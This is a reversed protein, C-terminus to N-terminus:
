LTLSEMGMIPYKLVIPAVVIIFFKPLNISKEM